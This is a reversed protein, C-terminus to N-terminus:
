RSRRKHQYHNYRLEVIEKPVKKGLETEFDEMTKDFMDEVNIHFDRCVAV